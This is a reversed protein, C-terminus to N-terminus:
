ANGTDVELNRDTVVAEFCVTCGWLTRLSGNPKFYEIKCIEEGEDIRHTGFGCSGRRESIVGGAFATQFDDYDIRRAWKLARNVRSDSTEHKKEEPNVLSTTEGSLPFTPPDPMGWTNHNVSEHLMRKVLDRYHEITLSSESEAWKELQDRDHTNTRM